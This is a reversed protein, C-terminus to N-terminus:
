EENLEFRNNLQNGSIESFRVPHPVPTFRKM